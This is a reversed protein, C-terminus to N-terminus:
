NVSSLIRKLDANKIYKDGIDKILSKLCKNIRDQLHGQDSPFSPWIVRRMFDWARAESYEPGGACIFTYVQSRGAENSSSGSDSFAEEEVVEAMIQRGKMVEEDTFSSLKVKFVESAARELVKSADPHSRLASLLARVVKSGKVQGEFCVLFAVAKINSEIAFKVFSEEFEKNNEFSWLKEISSFDVSKIDSPSVKPNQFINEITVQLVNHQDQQLTQQNLVGEGKLRGIEAELEAIRAKLIKCNECHDMTLVKIGEPTWKKLM